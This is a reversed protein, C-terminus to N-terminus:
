SLVEAVATLAQFSLSFPEVATEVVGQAWPIEPMYVTAEWLTIGDEGSFTLTHVLDSGRAARLEAVVERYTGYEGWRVEIRPPTSPQVVIAAGGALPYVTEKPPIVAVRTPQYELDVGDIQFISM